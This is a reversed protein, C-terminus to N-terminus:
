SQVERDERLEKDKDIEPPKSSPMSAKRGRGKKFSPEAKPEDNVFVSRRQLLGM